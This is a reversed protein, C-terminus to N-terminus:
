RTVSRCGILSNNAAPGQNIGYVCMTSTGRPIASLPIAFGHLDGYGPYAKGVDPRSRNAVWAGYWKNNVYVHVDISAATDPDLAWGGLHAVGNLSAVGEVNGFPAGGPTTFNRCGIQPNSSGTSVNIAYLCVTHPGAAQKALSFRYGHLDGYGPYAKGVDTRLVNATAAGAFRGDVYAHVDIPATTDPDIAWGSVETTGPGVNVASDLAGTPDRFSNAAVGALFRRLAVVNTGNIDLNHGQNPNVDLWLQRNAFPGTALYRAEFDYAEQIVILGDLAGYSLFSPPASATVNHTPSAATIQATTCSTYCGLMEGLIPTWANTGSYFRLLSIPGAISVMGQYDARQAALDTPLTPELTRGATVASLAALHGGASTGAAVVMNPNLQYTPAKSRLWRTARKFDHINRPFSGIGAERDSKFYSISAVAWGASLADRVTMPVDSRDGCCWGGSHAYVMVKHPGPTRPLYLDLLQHADPGYRLAPYVAGPSPPVYSTSIQESPSSPPLRFASLTLILVVATAIAGVARLSRPPSTMCRVTRARERPAIAGRARREARPM